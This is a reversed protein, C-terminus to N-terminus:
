IRNFANIVVTYTDPDLGEDELIIRECNALVYESDELWSRHHISRYNIRVIQDTSKQLIDCSVFYRRTIM